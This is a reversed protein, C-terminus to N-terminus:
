NGYWQDRRLCSCAYSKVFMATETSTTRQLTFSGCKKWVHRNFIKKTDEFNNLTLNIQKYQDAEQKLPSLQESIDGVILLLRDFSSKNLVETRRASPVKRLSHLSLHILVILNESPSLMGLSPCLKPLTGNGNLSYFLHSLIWVSSVSTNCSKCIWCKQVSYMFVDANSCIM